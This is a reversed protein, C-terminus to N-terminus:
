SYEYLSPFFDYAFESYRFRCFELLAVRSFYNFIRFFFDYAIIKSYFGKKSLILAAEAYKPSFHLSWLAELKILSIIASRM